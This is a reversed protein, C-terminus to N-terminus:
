SMVTYNSHRRDDIVLREFDDDTDDIPNDKETEDTTFMFYHKKM